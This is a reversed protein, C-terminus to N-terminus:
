IMEGSYKPKPVKQRSNRIDINYCHYKKVQKGYTQTVQFLSGTHHENVTFFIHIDEETTLKTSHFGSWSERISGELRVPGGRVDISHGVSHIESQSEYRSWRKQQVFDFECLGGRSEVLKYIFPKVHFIIEMKIKNPNDNDKEGITAQQKGFIHRTSPMLYRAVTGESQGEQDELSPKIYVINNNKNRKHPEIVWKIGKYTKENPCYKVHVNSPSSPDYRLYYDRHEMNELLVENCDKVKTVLWLARRRKQINAKIDRCFYAVKKTKHLHKNHGHKMCKLWRNEEQMSRICIVKGSYNVENLPTAAPQSSCTENDVLADTEPLPISEETQSVITAMSPTAAAQSSCTQNDVLADTELLSMTEEQIETARTTAM